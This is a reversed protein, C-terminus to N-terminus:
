FRKWVGLSFGINDTGGGRKYELGGVWKMDNRRTFILAPTLTWGFGYGEKYITELKVMPQTRWDTPIGLVADLKYLPPGLGERLEVAPELGFWGNAGVSQGYLVAIRTMGSIDGNYQHWGAGLQLSLRGTDGPEAIPIRAFIVGHGVGDARGNIDIGMTLDNRLGYETYVSFEQPASGNRLIANGSAFGKGRKLLWAGASAKSCFVGCILCLLIM